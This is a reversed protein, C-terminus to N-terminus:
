VSEQLGAVPQTWVGFVAGHLSPLAQVVASTQALPAHTPPGGSLQLSAFTQVSSEHSGGVPQTCVGFVAGQSSPLAQVVASEEAWRWSCTAVTVLAWLTVPPTRWAIVPQLQSSRVTVQFVCGAISPGTSATSPATACPWVTSKSTVGAM